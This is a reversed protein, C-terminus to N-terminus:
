AGGGLLIFFGFAALTKNDPLASSKTGPKPASEVAAPAAEVETADDPIVFCQETNM